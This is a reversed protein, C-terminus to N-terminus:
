LGGSDAGSEEVSPPAAGAAALFEVLGHRVEKVFDGSKSTATRHVVKQGDPLRRTAMEALEEFTTASKYAEYRLRDKETTKPNDQQFAFTQGTKIAQTILAVAADRSLPQEERVPPADSFTGTQYGAAGGTQVVPSAAATLAPAEVTDSNGGGGSDGGSSGSSGCGVEAKGGVVRQAERKMICGGGGGGGSHDHLSALDVHPGLWAFYPSLRSSFPDLGHRHIFPLSSSLALVQVRGGDEVELVKTEDDVGDEEQEEQQEEQDEEDGDDDDEDNGEDEDDEDDNDDEADDDDEDGEDDDDEEDENDDDDEDEEEDGFDEENEEDHVDRAVKLITEMLGEDDDYDTNAAASEAGGFFGGL